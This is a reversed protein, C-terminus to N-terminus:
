ERVYLANISSGACMERQVNGTNTAFEHTAKGPNHPIPKGRAAICAIESSKCEESHCYEIDKDMGDGDPVRCEIYAVADDDFVIILSKRYGADAIRMIGSTEM